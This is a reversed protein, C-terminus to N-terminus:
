YVNNSNEFTDCSNTRISFDCVLSFHDSPYILSPVRDAGIDTETPFELVSDIDLNNRSYFVYDITHCIEGEDRIKWTTYPPERTASPISNDCNTEAYASALSQNSNLMTSYIPESPEANFDGAIILPRDEAYRQVFELLDKGQENRLTALLASHRAKLHTTVVCIEEGTEKVKLIMLLAVQNSQIKWIELIRTEARVLEFKNSRFFVACGDPGNNGDIYFCPSDPKPFFMGTYGQTALVRKLFNFHDVEQLCIVDPCYEVIEEVILYKRHNWDLAEDPCRVFNDNMTGLAQSLINWQFVRITHPSTTYESCVKTVANLKRFKLGYTESNEGNQSTQNNRSAKRFARKFMYQGYPRKQCFQILENRSINKPISMDNDQSDDNLIKPASSFSGMRTLINKISEKVNNLAKNEIVHYESKECVDEYIESSVIMNM